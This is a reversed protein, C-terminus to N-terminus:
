DSNDIVVLAPLSDVGLRYLAEARHGGELIYPGEEDIVVILPDIWGNDRILSALQKIRNTESVSYSKGTLDFVSLPVERIGDLIDYDDLTSDISGTNPINDTVTLGSM